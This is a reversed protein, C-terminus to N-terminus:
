TRKGLDVENAPKIHFVCDYCTGWNCLKFLYNVWIRTLVLRKVM